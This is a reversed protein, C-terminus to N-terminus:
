DTGRSWTLISVKCSEVLPDEAATLCLQQYDIPDGLVTLHEYTHHSLTPDLPCIMPSMTISGECVMQFVLM